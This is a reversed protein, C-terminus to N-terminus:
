GIQAARLTAAGRTWSYYPTLDPPFSEADLGAGFFVYDYPQFCPVIM